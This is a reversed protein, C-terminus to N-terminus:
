KINREKRGSQKMLKNEPTKDANSMMNSGARPRATREAQIRRKKGLM